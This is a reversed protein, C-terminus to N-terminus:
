DPTTGPQPASTGSRVRDEDPVRASPSNGGPPFAVPYWGVVFGEHGASDAVAGVPGQGPSSPANFAAVVPHDADAPNERADRTKGPLEGAPVVKGARERPRLQDSVSGHPPTSGSDVRAPETKPELEGRSSPSHADPAPPAPVENMWLPSLLNAVDVDGLEALIAPVPESGTVDSGVVDRVAADAGAADDVPADGTLSGAARAVPELVPQAQDLVHTVPREAFEDGSPVHEPPTEPGAIATEVVSASPEPSKKRVSKQGPTKQGAPKQLPSAQVPSAQSPSAQEPFVTEDLGNVASAIPDPEGDAAQEVPGSPAAFFEAADSTAQDSVDASAGAGVLGAVLTGLAATGAVVVARGLLARPGASERDQRASSTRAPSRRGPSMRPPFM